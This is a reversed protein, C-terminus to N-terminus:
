NRGYRKRESEKVYWPKEAAGHLAKEEIFERVRGVMEFLGDNGNRFVSEGESELVEKGQNGIKYAGGCRYPISNINSISMLIYKTSKFYINKSIKM